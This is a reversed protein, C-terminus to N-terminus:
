RGLLTGDLECQALGPNPLFEFHTDNEGITGSRVSERLWEQLNSWNGQPILYEDTDFSILWETTPGYRVRCSAEAAYQSSREGANNHAPRNNNCVRHKWPIRTVRDSPFLDLVPQLSTEKTHAETNDYVYVHDLKAVYLHYALWELLRLATSTDLEAGAGRTSFSASAWLCGILYDQRNENEDQSKEKNHHNTGIARPNIKAPPRCIPINAWRGSEEVTPLVHADGWEKKPDFTSPVQPCYGERTERPPTRIPVLDFYISPVNQVVSEGSQVSSKLDFPVPCRFHLVSNWVQENHAGHTDQDDEPRTLMPHPTRSKRFNAHEYNYPFVSFTEGLVVKEVNGDDTPMLSHFQCLFRTERGDEDAEELSALRYRHTHNNQTTWDPVMQALEAPTLRKVPVSQMIAVQPELNQLDESFSPATRCRRKNHAIFEIFEGDVSPFVDHIWPLFPDADVPCNPVYEKRLPYLPLIGGVNPGFRHDAEIPHDVPLSNQLDQCSQVNPYTYMELQINTRIPLPTGKQLPPELYATLPLSTRNMTRRLFHQVLRENKPLDGDNTQGNAERKELTKGKRRAKTEQAEKLQKHISNLQSDKKEETYLVHFAFAFFFFFSSALVLLTL